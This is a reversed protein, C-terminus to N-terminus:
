SLMVGSPIPLCSSKPSLSLSLARGTLLFIALTLLLLGFLYVDSSVARTQLLRGGRLVCADGM